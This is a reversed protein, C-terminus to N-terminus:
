VGIWVKLEDFAGVVESAAFDYRQKYRHRVAKMDNMGVRGWKGFILFYLTTVSM